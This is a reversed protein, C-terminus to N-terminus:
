TDEWFRIRKGNGVKWKYGMKAANVAWMFEKFFCSSSTTDTVLINPNETKYKFDILEKWLKDRDTKYRKLWSGLLSLNLDRLNPIGM